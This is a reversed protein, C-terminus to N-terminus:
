SPDARGGSPNEMLLPARHCEEAMSSEMRLRLGAASLIPVAPSKARAIVADRRLQQQWPM